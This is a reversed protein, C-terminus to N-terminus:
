KLGIKLHNNKVHIKKKVESCILRLYQIYKISPLYKSKSNYM